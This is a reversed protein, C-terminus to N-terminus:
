LDEGRWGGLGRESGRGRMRPFGDPATYVGRIRHEQHRQTFRLVEQSPKEILDGHAGDRQNPASIGGM